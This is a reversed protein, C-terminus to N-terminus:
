WTKPETVSDVIFEVLNRQGEVLNLGLQDRVTQALTEPHSPDYSLDFDYRGTLGTEDVIQAGLVFQAIHVISEVSADILQAKGKDRIWYATKKKSNTARLKPELADLRSLVYVRTPKTERHVKLQFIADVTQALLPGRLAEQHQPTVISLDYRSRSCWEPADILDEPIDYIESLLSRLTVGYEEHRGNQDLALGPSTGSVAVPAAPRIMVQLLPAPAGPESGMPPGPLVESFHLPAGDLLDKLVEPTLSGPINTIGEVVGGPNVLVTQPRGEVGYRKFTSSEDDFAVWGSIPHRTLFQKVLDFDTEDTISIFQIPKSKFEAALENIHPINDVCGGCWTAWFELVVAQGKLEGWTGSVGAPAQLLQKFDLPPASDGAKLPGDARAMPQLCFALALMASCFGNRTM